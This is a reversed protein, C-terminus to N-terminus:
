AKLAANLARRIDTLLDEPHELGVSLRVMGEGIGAAAREAPTLKAHTTSAPHTATSRTDGLNATRSFVQLADLFARGGALGSALELTVLGGGRRMQRAALAKQPHSDLEPHRVTKVAPHGELARAVTLANDCHREMRVALTELSKSLIWGNFPSLAPGSHRAFFQIPEILAKSGLIAGGLVRGQGDIYKTASHLVLDAGWRIPQQLYPSAFCNDVMLVLGRAKTFASLATLDILDLAPNTPTEVLVVKTRPTSLREWAEPGDTVEFYSSSIGWRPLIQSLVQHTSGFLSRCALIHDGQSLLGALATFIAGMGSATSIGTEALELRALKDIFEVNNPNSYRSYIFGEQEGAFLARAEEASEFVYSSSLYIAASHEGASSRGGQLRIAQTEFAAQRPDFDDIADTAM